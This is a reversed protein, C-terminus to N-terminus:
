RDTINAEFLLGKFMVPKYEGYPFQDLVYIYLLSGIPILGFLKYVVKRDIVGDFQEASALHSRLLVGLVKIYSNILFKKMAQNNRHKIISVAMVM